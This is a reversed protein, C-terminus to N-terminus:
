PRFDKIFEILYKEEAPRELVPPMITPGSHIVKRLEDINHYTKVGKLDYYSRSAATNALVTLGAILFEPIRTLAGSTPEQHVLAYDCNIILQDLQEANITGWVHINDGTYVDKLGESGYGAVNINVSEDGKLQNIIEIYGNYTPSNHFTGLLLIEKRAGNTNLKNNKKDRLSLLHGALADTPYYSLYTANIGYLSLLWREERSITFVHRAHKLYGLEETLWGPAQRKSLVSEAGKILSEINHPLAIFPVKNKHLVDALLLYHSATSEWIFLDPRENQIFADFQSLYRGIAYNNKLGLGPKKTYAFGKFYSPIHLPSLQYPSFDAEKFAIGAKFLLENLQTTRKNGGHGSPDPSFHSHKYIGPM